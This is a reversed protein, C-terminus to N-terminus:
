FKPSLVYVYRTRAQIGKNNWTTTCTVEKCKDIPTNSQIVCNLTYLIGDINITTTSNNLSDFDASTYQVRTANEILEELMMSARTMYYSRSDQVTSRAIMTSAALAGIALVISAILIEVITFGHCSQKSYITNM